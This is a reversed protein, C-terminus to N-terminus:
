ADPKRRVYLVKRVRAVVEDEEDLIEVTWEPLHTQGDSAAGRIGAVEEDTIRVTARVTGTGPKRFDIHAETDWVVFRPGLRAKLLIMLHPDVMSYLSGGFHTGLHAVRRGARGKSRLKKRKQAIKHKIIMTVWAFFAGENRLTGIDRVAELLASQVIDQTSHLTRLTTGLEGHFRQLWRDYYRAILDNRAKSDGEKARAVLALTDANAM